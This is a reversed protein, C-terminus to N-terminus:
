AGLPESDDVEPHGGSPLPSAPKMSPKAGLLRTCANVMKDIRWKPLARLMGNDARHLAMGLLCEAPRAGKLKLRREGKLLDAVPVPGKATIALSTDLHLSTPACSPRTSQVFSSRRVDCWHSSASGDAWVWFGMAEQVPLAPSLTTPQLSQCCSSPSRGARGSSTLTTRPARAARARALSLAKIGRLAGSSGSSTTIKRGNSISWSNAAPPSWRRQM